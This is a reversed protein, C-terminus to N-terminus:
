APAITTVTGSSGKYMLTGGSVFLVGGSVPTDPEAAVNKIAVMAGTLSINPVSLVGDEFTFSSNTGVISSSNLGYVVRNTGLGTTWVLNGTVGGRRTKFTGGNLTSNYWIDGDTLPSPDSSVSGVNLGAYSSSPHFIVTGGTINVSGSLTTSGSTAWFQTADVVLSSTIGTVFGKDVLSRKTYTASYDASYELGKKTTRLDSVTLSPGITSYVLGINGSSAKGFAATTGQMSLVSNSQMTLFLGNIGSTNITTSGTIDGGLKISSGTKTLGNSATVALSSAQRIEIEGTSANRALLNDNTNATTISANSGLGFRVKPFHVTNVVGSGVKITQGGLIASRLANSPINHDSGGLIASAVALAGHGATQTTLNESFNFSAEGASLIRKDVSSGITGWGGAFARNGTALTQAGMAFSTQGAAATFGGIATSFDKAYTNNGLSNSFNGKSFSSVIKYNYTGTVGTYVSSGVVGGAKILQSESIVRSITATTDDTISSLFVYYLTDASDTIWFGFWYSLGRGTADTFNTGHGLVSTSGNTLTITGQGIIDVNSRVSNINDVFQNSIISGTRLIDASTATSGSTLDVIKYSTVTNNDQIIM